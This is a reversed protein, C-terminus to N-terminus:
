QSSQENLQRPLEAQYLTVKTLYLDRARIGGLAEKEKDSENLLLARGPQAIILAAQADRFESAAADRFASVDIDNLTKLKKNLRYRTCRTQPKTFQRSGSLFALETKSLLHQVM